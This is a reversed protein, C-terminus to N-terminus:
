AFKPIFEDKSTVSRVFQALLLICREVDALDVMEVTSHMYRLPVSVLASPIGGKTHYVRDTDTVTTRSSAEHQIPIQLEEALSILRQVVTPHNAAGHTVTPGNGLTISGHKNRDIGPSDTAHTVDLVIAVSPELRYSIMQMGTGGIEEQVANVAFLTAGPRADPRSLNALVESLIFGGIRNDIARGILRGPVLETATDAYVAPHGVRIGRKEVEERSSAGIDLYLEHVEPVKENERDRIHYATGGVVASVPGKDGLITLRKSRAIARDSGGIRIVYLFGSETINQIMYGIEDAHAELMIRASSGSGSITAWANGYADNEVTDAFLSVYNMWTKQGELEFGAPSPTDLLRILFEKANSNM